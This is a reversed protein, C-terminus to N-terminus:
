GLQLKPEKVKYQILFYDCRYIQEYVVSLDYDATMYEKIDKIEGYASKLSNIGAQFCGVCENLASKLGNDVIISYKNSTHKLIQQM